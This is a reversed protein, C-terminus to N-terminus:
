RANLEFVYRGIETGAETGPSLGKLLLQYEGSANNVPAVRIPVTDKSAEVTEAPIALSWVRKGSPDMLEASYSQYRSNAPMDVFLVFPQGPQVTVRPRSDGRATGNSLYTSALVQPERLGAITKSMKPSVVFTQYGVVLLLVAFAAGLVPTWRWAFWGSKSPVAPMSLVPPHSALAKHSQEIFAAGMRVDAACEPCSFFHEEFQERMEPSFEDLLYREAAKLQLAEDHKM